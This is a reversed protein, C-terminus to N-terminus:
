KSGALGTHMRPTKSVVSGPWVKELFFLEGNSNTSSLCIHRLYQFFSALVRWIEGFSASNCSALKWLAPKDFEFECHALILCHLLTM